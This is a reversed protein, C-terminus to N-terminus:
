APDLIGTVSNYLNGAVQELYGPIKFINFSFFTSQWTGAATGHIEWGVLPAPLGVSEGGWSTGTM